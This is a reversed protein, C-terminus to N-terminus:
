IGCAESIEATPYGEIEFARGTREYVSFVAGEIEFEATWEIGFTAPTDILKIAQPVGEWCVWAAFQDERDLLWANRTWTSFLVFDGLTVLRSERAQALQTIREIERKIDLKGFTVSVASCPETRREGAQRAHQRRRNKAEEQKKRSSAM